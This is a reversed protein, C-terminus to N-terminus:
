TAASARARRVTLVVDVILEIGIPISHVFHKAFWCKMTEEHVSGFINSSQTCFLFRIVFFFVHM